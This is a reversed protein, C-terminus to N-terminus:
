LDYGLLCKEFMLDPSCCSDWFCSSLGFELEFSTLAMPLSVRELLDTERFNSEACDIPSPLYNVTSASMAHKEPEDTKM